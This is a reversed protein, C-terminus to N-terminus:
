RPHNDQPAQAEGGHNFELSGSVIGGPVSVAIVPEGGAVSSGPEPNLVVLEPAGAATGSILYLFIGALCRRL